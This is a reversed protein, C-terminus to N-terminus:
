SEALKQLERYAEAPSRRNFVASGVCVYDAGCDRAATINHEKIGGDIGIELPIKLARVEQIKDLVGPIFPSGYFGPNVSLFLAFDLSPALQVLPAIPTEPNLALGAKKGLKKIRSIVAAPDGAGEYHFVIRSGGAEVFREIHNEPHKVMLHVEMELNTRIPALDQATISHSPVFRGDMIDIQVLGTFTEAQRIKNVLDECQDTLIAPVIKM